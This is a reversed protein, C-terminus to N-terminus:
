QLNGGWRLNSIISHLIFCFIHLREEKFLVEQGVNKKKMKQRGEQSGDRLL